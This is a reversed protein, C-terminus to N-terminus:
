WYNGSGGQGLKGSQDGETEPLMEGPNEADGIQLQGIVRALREIGEGLRDVEEWSFCLRIDCPFNVEASDGPVEFLRGEAVILNEKEQALRAVDASKLPSPLTLWVFYGGVVERGPQPLKVGLPVLHKEIALMIARYRAAYAPQLTGYIHEQLRGSELLQAVYTSTLQSPAGGSRSTGTQSVGYAFKANGELYGVRLGPGLIKSFSGNSAVNGFGDAGDREAGDDLFRDIDVLRPLLAKNLGRQDTDTAAPWQLFDYVDDCIVLADYERALKVLEKRRELPMTVSSPNAFSPVVYIVHPYIKSWPREPKVTPRTNGDKRAKEESKTIERRLFDIDIGGDDEPVSRLRGSFGSDEFIRFALFYAPSSIWINRTYIPDTFTQLICGLNQSAGGTITIREDTVPEGPRFFDTLWAAIAKRAGPDGPDPGYLLGPTAVDPRTLVNDVAQKILATPLLSTNPWGRLLNILPKATM